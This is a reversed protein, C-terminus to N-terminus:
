LKNNLTLSDNIIYCKLILPYPSYIKLFQKFITTVWIYIVYYYLQVVIFEIIPINIPLKPHM